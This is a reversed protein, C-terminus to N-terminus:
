MIDLEPDHDDAHNSKVNVSAPTPTSVPTVAGPASSAEAAAQKVASELLQIRDEGISSIYSHVRIVLDDVIPLLTPSTIHNYTYCNTKILNWDALYAAVSTYSYTRLRSAILDMYMPQKIVTYYDPLDQKDVKARFLYFEPLNIVADLSPRLLSNLEGQPSDAKVRPKSVRKKPPSQESVAYANFDDDDEDDGFDIFDSRKRKAAARRRNANGGLGKFVFKTGGAAVVEARTQGANRQAAIGVDDAFDEEPTEDGDDVWDEELIEEEEEETDSKPRKSKPAGKKKKKGGYGDEDDDIMDSYM